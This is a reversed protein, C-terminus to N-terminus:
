NCVVKKKYNAEFTKSIAKNSAVLEDYRRRDVANKPVGAQLFKKIKADETALDTKIQCLQEQMAYMNATLATFVDCLEKVREYNEDGYNQNFIACTEAKEEFNIKPNSIETLAVAVVKELKENCAAEITSNVIRGKWCWGAEFLEGYSYGDDNKNFYKFLIKDTYKSCARKAKEGIYYAYEPCKEFDFRAAFEAEVERKRQPDIEDVDAVVQVDDSADEKPENATPAAPNGYKEICFSTTPYKDCYADGCFAPSVLASCALFLLFELNKM